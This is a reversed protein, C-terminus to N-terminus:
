LGESITSRVRRRRTYRAVTFRVRTSRPGKGMVVGPYLFLNFRRQLFFTLLFFQDEEGDAQIVGYHFGTLGPGGAKAARAVDAVELGPFIVVM